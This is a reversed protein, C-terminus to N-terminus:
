PTLCPGAEGIDCAHHLGLAALFLSEPGSKGGDVRARVASCRVWRSVADVESLVGDLIMRTDRSMEERRASSIFQSLTKKAV